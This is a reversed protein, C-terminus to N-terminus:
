WGIAELNLDYLLDLTEDSVEWEGGGPQYYIWVNVARIGWDWFARVYAELRVSQESPMRGGIEAIFIRHRPYGTVQQYWDLIVAPDMGWTWYSVGIFDPPHDMEGIREALSPLGETWPEIDWPHRSLTMARYVELSANPYRKLAGARALNFTRQREDEFDLLRQQREMYQRRKEEPSCTGGDPCCWPTEECPHCGTAYWDQEWPTFIIKLPRNWAVEYLRNLIFWHPAEETIRCGGGDEIRWAHFRIFIQRARTHKLFTEWECGPEDTVWTWSNEHHGPCYPVTDTWLSVSRFGDDAIIETMGLDRKRGYDIAWLGAERHLLYSLGEQRPPGIPRLRRGSDRPPQDVLSAECDDICQDCLWQPSVACTSACRDECTTSFSYNPAFVAVITLFCVFIKTM